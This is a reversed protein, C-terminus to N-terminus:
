LRKRKLKPDEYQEHPQIIEVYNCVDKAYKLWNTVHCTKLITYTLPIKLISSGDDNLLSGNMSVGVTILRTELKETVEGLLYQSNRELWGKEDVFYTENEGIISGQVVKNDIEQLM